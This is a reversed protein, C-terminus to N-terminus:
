LDLQFDEHHLEILAKLKAEKKQEKKSKMKQKAEMLAELKAEKKLEKKPKMKQKAKMLTKLKAEKKLEKKSKMKQEAKVTKTTAQAQGLSQTLNSVDEELMKVRTAAQELSQTINIVAKKLDSKDIELTRIAMDHKPQIVSMRQGLVKIEAKLGEKEVHDRESLELNAVTDLFM